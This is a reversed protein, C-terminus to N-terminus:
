KKTLSEVYDVVQNLSTLKEADDDNIEIGFVEELKIVIEVMDLSDAGLDEFSCSQEVTSRNISLKKTVINIVKERIEQKSLQSV